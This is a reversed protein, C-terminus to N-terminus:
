STATRRRAYSISLLVLALLTLSFGALLLQLRSFPVGGITLVIDRAFNPDSCCIMPTGRPTPAVTFIAVWALMSLVLALVRLSRSRAVDSDETRESTRELLRM